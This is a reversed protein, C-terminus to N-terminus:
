CSSYCNCQATHQRCRGLSGAPRGARVRSCPARLGRLNLLTSVYPLAAREFCESIRRRLASADEISKFFMCHEKVGKIGFTNNVSGVQLVTCAGVGAAIVQLAKCVAVTWWWDSRVLAQTVCEYVPARIMDMQLTRVGVILIDYSIKFCAEDLGADKPFCAVLEKRQVDIAKAVAEYYDGQV